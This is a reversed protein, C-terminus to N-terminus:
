RAYLPLEAGTCLLGTARGRGIQAPPLRLQPGELEWEGGKGM